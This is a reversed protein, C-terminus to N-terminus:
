DVLTIKISGLDITNAESEQPTKTQVNVSNVGGDYFDQSYENKYHEFWQHALKWSSYYADILDNGRSDIMWLHYVLM